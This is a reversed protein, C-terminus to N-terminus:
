CRVASLENTFCMVIGDASNQLETTCQIYPQTKGQNYSRLQQVHSGCAQHQLQSASTPSSKM